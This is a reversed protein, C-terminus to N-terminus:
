QPVANNIKSYTINKLNEPWETRAKAEPLGKQKNSKVYDFEIVV